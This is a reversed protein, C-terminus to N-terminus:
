LFSGLLELSSTTASATVDHLSLLQRGWHLSFMLYPITGYIVIILALRCCRLKGVDVRGAGEVEGKM